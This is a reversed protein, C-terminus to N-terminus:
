NPASDITITGVNANTAGAIHNNGRSIVTAGNGYNQLGNWVNTIVTNSVRAIATNYAIVATKNLSFAHAILARDVVLLAGSGDAGFGYTNNVAVCDRAVTRAPGAIHVGTQNNELIVGDLTVQATGGATQVHIGHNSNRFESNKVMVVAAGAVNLGNGLFSSVNIDELYVETSSSIHIGHQSSAGVANLTIGRLQVRGLTNITIGDGDLVTMGAYVGPPVQISVPWVITVEEGFGGSDLVIVEGQYATQFLARPFTRCPTTPLCNNTDLGSRASVFTRNFPATPQAFALGSALILGSFLATAFRSTMM